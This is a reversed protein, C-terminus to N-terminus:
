DNNNFDSEHFLLTKKKRTEQGYKEKLSICKAPRHKQLCTQFIKNMYKKENRLDKM